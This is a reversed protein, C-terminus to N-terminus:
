HMICQKEEDEDICGWKSSLLYSTVGGFSTHMPKSRTSNKQTVELLVLHPIATQSGIRIGGDSDNCIYAFATGTTGFDVGVYCVRECADEACCAATWLLFLLAVPLKWSVGMALEERSCLRFM